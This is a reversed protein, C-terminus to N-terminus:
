FGLPKKGYIEINRFYADDISNRYFNYYMSQTYENHYWGGLNLWVCTGFALFLLVFYVMSVKKNTEYIYSAFRVLYMLMPIFVPQYIRAINVGRLQWISDYSPVLNLFLFLWFVGLFISVEVINLQFKYFIRAPIYIILFLGPLIFFGANFLNEIFIGPLQKIHLLLDAVSFNDTVSQLIVTYLDKNANHFLAGYTQLALEVIVQPLFIVIASLVAWLWQKRFCYFFFIAPIFMIFLDYGTFLVGILFWIGLAKKLVTTTELKMMLIYVFVCIPFITNQAFPSGIWYMIGTYSGALLMAAYAASSGYKKKVFHILYLFTFITLLFCTLEGGWYFGFARFFPYGVIFLGVRRLTLGYKWEEKPTVGRIMKYNMEYLTDDYNTIYGKMIHPKTLCAAYVSMNGSNLWMQLVLMFTAAGLLFKYNTIHKMKM